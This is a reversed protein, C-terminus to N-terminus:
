HKKDFLIKDGSDLSIYSLMFTCYMGPIKVRIGADVGGGGDGHLLNTECSPLSFNEDVNTVYVFDWYFCEFSYFWSVLILKWSFYM